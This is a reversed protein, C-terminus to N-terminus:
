FSLVLAYKTKLSVKPPLTTIPSAPALSAVVVLGSTSDVGACWYLYFLLPLSTSQTYHLQLLLTSLQDM